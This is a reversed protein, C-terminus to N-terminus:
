FRHIIHNYQVSNTKFFLDSARFFQMHGLFRFHLRRFQFHCHCEDILEGSLKQFFDKETDAM